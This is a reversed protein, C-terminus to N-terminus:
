AAPLPDDLVARLTYRSNAWVVYLLPAPALGLGLGPSLLTVAGLAAVAVLSVVTLYWRRVALFLCARALAPVAASPEDALAVLSLGAVAVVLVALVAFMPAVAAGVPSRGSAVVDVVLVTLVLAAAGALVLSRRLGAWWAAWFTRVVSTDGTASFRAFVSFAAVLAPGLLPAALALLPWHRVPDPLGAGLLLPLVAISVCLNTVLGVYLTGFAHSYASHAGEPRTM